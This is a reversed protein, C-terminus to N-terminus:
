ISENKPIRQILDILETNNDIVFFLEHPRIARRFYSTPPHDIGDIYSLLYAKIAIFTKLLSPASTIRRERLDTHSELAFAKMNNIEPLVPELLIKDHQIVRHWSQPIPPLGIETRAPGYPYLESVHSHICCLLITKPQHQTRKLAQSLAITTYIHDKHSDIVPHPTVIVDPQHKEIL